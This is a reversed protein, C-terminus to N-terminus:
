EPWPGSGSSPKPDAAGTIAAALDDMQARGRDLVVPLGQALSSKVEERAQWGGLMHDGIEGTSNTRLDVVQDGQGCTQFVGLTKDSYAM